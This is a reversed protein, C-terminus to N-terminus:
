ILDTNREPIENEQEKYRHNVPSDIMFSLRKMSDEKGGKLLHSISLYFDLVNEFSHAVTSTKGVIKEALFRSPLVHLKQRSYFYNGGIIKNWPFTCSKCLLGSIDPCLMAGQDWHTYFAFISQKEKIEILDDMGNLSSANAAVILCNETETYERYLAFDKQLLLAIARGLVESDHDPIAIIKEPIKHLSALYICLKELVNRICNMDAHLEMYRDSEYHSFRATDMIATGYQVYQWFHISTNTKPHAKLRFFQEELEELKFSAYVASEDMFPLQDRSNEIFAAIGETEGNLLRCFQLRYYLWFDSSYDISKLVAVARHIKFRAALALSLEYATERSDPAHYIAKELFAEALAYNGKDIYYYGLQFFPQYLYFRNLAQQFLQKEETAKQKHLISAALKYLAKYNYDALFGLTLHDFAQQYNKCVFSEKANLFHIRAPSIRFVSM